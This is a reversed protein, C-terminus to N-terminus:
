LKTLLAAHRTEQPTWSSGLIWTVQGSSVAINGHVCLFLRLCFFGVELLSNIDIYLHYYVCQYNIKLMRDKLWLQIEGSLFTVPNTSTEKAKLM